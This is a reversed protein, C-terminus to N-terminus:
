ERGREITRSFRSSRSSSGKPDERVERVIRHDAQASPLCLTGPTLPAM